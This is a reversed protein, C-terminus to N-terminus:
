SGIKPTAISNQNERKRQVNKKPSFLVFLFRLFLCQFWSQDLLAAAIAEKDGTEFGDHYSVIDMRRLLDM